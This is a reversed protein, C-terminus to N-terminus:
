EIGTLLYDVSLGLAKALRLGDNLSFTPKKCLYEAGQKTIGLREGIEEYTLNQREKQIMIREKVTAGNELKLLAYKAAEYAAQAKHLKHEATALKAKALALREDHTRRNSM